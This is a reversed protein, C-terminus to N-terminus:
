SAVRDLDYFSDVTKSTLPGQPGQRRRIPPDRAGLPFFGLDRALFPPPLDSFLLVFSSFHCEYM